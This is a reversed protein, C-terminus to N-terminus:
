TISAPRAEGTASAKTATWRRAGTFADYCETIWVDKQLNDQYGTTVSHGQPTVVTDVPVYTVDAAGGIDTNTYQWAVYNREARLAPALLLLSSLLILTTKM